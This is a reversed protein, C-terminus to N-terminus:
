RIAFVRDEGYMAVQRAGRGALWASIRAGRGPEYFAEHVVV